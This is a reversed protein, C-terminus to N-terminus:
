EQLYEKLFEKKMRVAVDSSRSLADSLPQDSTILATAGVARYAEILYLDDAKVVQLLAVPISPLEARDHFRCKIPDLLIAQRLYKSLVRIRPESRKMLAYAKTMWPSGQMVAIGDCKAKLKELFLLAQRQADRTNEGALDHLLWEDIVFRDAM